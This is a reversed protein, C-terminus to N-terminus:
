SAWPKQPQSKKQLPVQFKLKTQFHLLKKDVLTSNEIRFESIRTKFKSQWPEKYLTMTHEHWPTHVCSNDIDWEPDMQM